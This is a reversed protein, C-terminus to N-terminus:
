NTPKPLVSDQTLWVCDLELAHHDLNEVPRGDPGLVPGSTMDAATHIGPFRAELTARLNEPAILDEGTRLVRGEHDFLIWLHRNAPARRTLAEPFFREILARDLERTDAAGFIVVAQTTPLQIRGVGIYQMRGASLGFRAFQEESAALTATGERTFEVHTNALTGDSNFLITM